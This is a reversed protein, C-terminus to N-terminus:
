KSDFRLFDEGVVDEYRGEQLAELKLSELKKTARIVKPCTIKKSKKGKCKTFRGYISDFSGEKSNKLLKFAEERIKSKRENAEKLKDEIESLERALIELQEKEM